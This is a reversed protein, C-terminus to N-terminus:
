HLDHEGAFAVHLWAGSGAPLAATCCRDAAGPVRLVRSWLNQCGQAPPLHWRRGPVGHAARCEMLVGQAGGFQPSRGASVVLFSLYLAPFAWSFAASAM